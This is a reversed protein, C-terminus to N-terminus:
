TGSGQRPPLVRHRGDGCGGGGEAVEKLKKGGEGEIEEGKGKKFKRKKQNGGKLNRMENATEKGQCIAICPTLPSVVCSNRRLSGSM